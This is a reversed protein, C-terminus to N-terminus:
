KIQEFHDVPLVMVTARARFPNSQHSCVQNILSIVTDVDKEDVGAILTSKGRRLLGGTSDILTLPYNADHLVRIVSNSDSDEMIVMLMKKAM